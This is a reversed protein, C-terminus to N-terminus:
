LGFFEELQTSTLSVNGHEDAVLSDGKAIIQSRTAELQRLEKEARSREWRDVTPLDDLKFRSLRYDDIGGEGLQRFLQSLKEEQRTRWEKVREALAEDDDFSDVELKKQAIRFDISELAKEKLTELRFQVKSSSPM